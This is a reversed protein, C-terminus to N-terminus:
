GQDKSRLRAEPRAAEAIPVKGCSRFSRSVAPSQGLKASDESCFPVTGREAARFPRPSDWNQPTKPAFHSQGGRRLGFRDPVTGIKRLRRLLIPSDGEGCGSVTPSQGLKASDESCFPVTGREAATRLDNRISDRRM